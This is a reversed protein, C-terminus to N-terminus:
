HSHVQCSCSISSENVQFINILYKHKKERSPMNRPTPFWSYVFYLLIIHRRLPQCVTFVPSFGITSPSSHRSTLSHHSKLLSLPDPSCETILLGQASAALFSGPTNSCCGSGPHSSSLPHPSPLPLSHPLSAVPAPRSSGQLFKYFDSNSEPLAPSDSLSQDHSSHSLVWTQLPDRLRCLPSHSRPFSCLCLGRSLRSCHDLSGHHLTYRHQEKPLDCNKLVHIVQGILTETSDEDFIM